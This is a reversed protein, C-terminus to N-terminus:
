SCILRSQYWDDSGLQHQIIHAAFVLLNQQAFLGKTSHIYVKSLYALTIMPKDNLLMDAQKSRCFGQRGLQQWTWKLWNLMSFSLWMVWALIVAKYAVM